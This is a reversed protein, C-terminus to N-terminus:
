RSTAWTLDSSGEVRDPFASQEYLQTPGSM